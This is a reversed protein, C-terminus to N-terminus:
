NTGHSDLFEITRLRNGHLNIDYTPVGDFLKRIGELREETFPAAPNAVTATNVVYVVVNSRFSDNLVLPTVDFSSKDDDKDYLLGVNNNVTENLKDIARTVIYNTLM